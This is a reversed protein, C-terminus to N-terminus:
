AEQSEITERARRWPRNRAPTKGPSGSYIYKGVIFLASCIAVNTVYAESIAYISFAIIIIKERTEMKRCLVILALGTLVLNIIGYCYLNGLYHSDFTHFADQWRDQWFIKEPIGSLTRGFFTPGFFDFAYAGYWLRGTLFRDLGDWMNRPAGALGAYIATLFACLAALVAYGYKATATILKDFVGKGVKDLAIFVTVVTLLMLASNTYTFMYFSLNVIWIVALHLANLKKYNIFIYDISAWLLFASFTNAHGMFFFHRPTGSGGGRFVFNISEQDTVFVAIYILVHSAISAIKTSFSVKILRDIDVDQVAMILLFGYLFLNNVSIYSSYGVVACLAFTLALRRVTYRQLAIKAIAAAVCLGALLSNLFENRSLLSSYDFTYKLVFMFFAFYFLLEPATWAQLRLTDARNQMWLPRQRQAGHENM